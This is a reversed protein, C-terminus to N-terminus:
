LKLLTQLTQTVRVMTNSDKITEIFLAEDIREKELASSQSLKEVLQHRNPKEDFNHGAKRLVADRLSGVLVDTKKHKWLFRGLQQVQELHHRRTGDGVELLPGFRPLNKWLWVVTLILLAWLAKSAHEGLMSTFSRVKGLSFVVKGDEATLKELLEVHQTKVLYPNRFLRAESIFTVRGKHEDEVDLYGYLRSFFRHEDAIDGVDYWDGEYYVDDQVSLYHSGGLLVEYSENDSLYIERLEANPLDKGKAIELLASEEKEKDDEDKSEEGTGSDEDRQLVLELQSVLYELGVNKSDEDTWRRPAHDTFQGVDAWYDESREIFCIFHGGDTVWELIREAEAISRVSSAPAFITQEDYGLQLVGNSSQVEKGGAELYREAALYPNKRARGMYGIVREKEEIQRSCSPLFLICILTFVFWKM